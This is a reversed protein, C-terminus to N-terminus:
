SAILGTVKLISVIVGMLAEGALGGAAAALVAREDLAPRARRALAVLAAGAFAAVPLSAPVLMAVGMATPAPVRNGFRTRALLTLVVGVGLALLLATIAYPPLAATGTIAEATAKWSLASTTPMKENAMGYAAVIVGYVPVVVVAGVAAGLIQAILQARPSAGVRNGARYAWLMQAVMSTTGLALSGGLISTVPGRGAVAVQTLTGTAGGPNMDTEGTARAAINTLLLSLILAILMTVPHVHFARWGVVFIAVVSGALLPTWLRVSLAPDRTADAVGSTRAGRRLFTLDRFSRAIAGGGLVLPMFSGAVMLGLAPWVLWANASAYEAVPVVGEAAMWPVLVMRALLGGLMMSAAGRMGLMAGISAMMPSWQIGLTLAAASIGAIGFPLLTQEPILAPHQGDRLWTVAGAVLLAAFLLVTPTRATNRVTHITELLEGTAKGTPFPLAEDVILRRRLLTAVFVGIITVAFGWVAIAWGPFTWGMLALAPIPAVIGTSFSMVAASSAATQTINNELVGYPRARGLRRLAGFLAFGLLVATIGGGDIISVKLSTYVNGAALVVGIACGTLLARATAELRPAPAAPTPAPDIGSPVAARAPEAV